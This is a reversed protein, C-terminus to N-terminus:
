YSFHRKIMLNYTVRLAVLELAAPLSSWSITNEAGLCLTVILFFFFSCFLGVSLSNHIFLTSVNMVLTELSRQTAVSQMVSYHDVPSHTCNWRPRKNASCDASHLALCTNDNWVAGNGKVTSGDWIEPPKQLKKIEDSVTNPLFSNRGVTHFVFLIFKATNHFIVRRDNTM